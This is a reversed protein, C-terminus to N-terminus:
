WALTSGDAHWFVGSHNLDLQDIRQKIGTAAAEPTIEGMHNVMETSVFGPHIQAVAIGHEKLDIALSKGIANLAAKSARYGYFAGSTNDEISGMRSTINIVKSGSPLLPLLGQTLALPAITNIALQQRVSSLEVQNLKDSILLGANNILCDVRGETLQDVLSCVGPIMEENTLDIGSIVQDAVDEIEHSSNRCIATVSDGQESFQQALALGIGKNAGTIVINAM